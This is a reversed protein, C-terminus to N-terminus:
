KEFRASKLAESSPPKGNADTKKIPELFQSKKLYVNKGLAQALTCINGKRYTQGQNVEFAIALM